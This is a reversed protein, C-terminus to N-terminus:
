PFSHFQTYLSSEGIAFLRITKNVQLLLLILVFVLQSTPSVLMAKGGRKGSSFIRYIRNSKVLMPAYIMTVTVHFGIRSVSCAADNPELVFVYILCYSLITAVLIMTSLERSSAKILKQHRSKTYLIGTIVSAALGMSACSVLALGSVDAWLLYSPEIPVCRDLNDQDPWSFMACLECTHNDVIRENERCPKCEWCCPLDLTVYYQGKTCPLSCVSLPPTQGPTSGQWGHEFVEWNITDKELHLEQKDVDWTGVQRYPIDADHIYQLFNYSGLLDGRANFKVEGNVSQFTVNKLYKLLHGGTLCLTRNGGSLLCDSFAYGFTQVADIGKSYFIGLDTVPLRSDTVDACSNNTDTERWSCESYYEVFEPTWPNSAIARPTLNHFFAEFDPHRSLGFNVMFAGDAVKGNYHYGLSDTGAWIFWGTANARVVAAFLAFIQTPELILIVVKADRKSLLQTVVNDFEAEKANSEIMHSTALCISHRQTQKNFDKAGNEGYTGESFVLSVYTWGHHALLHALAIVQFRDPPVLRMFTRYRSKDSLENSSAYLSLVPIDHVSLVSAVLVAERSTLPGVVGNIRRPPTLGPCDANPGPSELIGDVLHLTRTLAIMDKWCTDVVVFGVTMNALLEPHLNLQHVAFVFAEVMELGQKELHSTCLHHPGPTHIPVLFALNIDGEQVYCRGALEPVGGQSMTVLLSLTVLLGAALRETM